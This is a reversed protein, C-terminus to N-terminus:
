GFRQVPQPIQDLVGRRADQPLVAGVDYRSTKRGLFKNTKRGDLEALDIEVPPSPASVMAPPHNDIHHDFFRCLEDAGSSEIAVAGASSTLM